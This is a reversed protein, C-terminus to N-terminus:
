PNKNCQSRRNTRHVTAKRMSAPQLQIMKVVRYMPYFNNFHIHDIRPENKTTIWDITRNQDALGLWIIYIVTNKSAISDNRSHPRFGPGPPLNKQVCCNVGPSFHLEVHFREESLINKTPDEYLMIVIQSMYNLESVISIYEMARRWQEDTMVDVLGGSRLVTLLSHIHSESTFYLRTRVHRGPSTVGHSYRPNLRNVSENGIEEINRQLDAKIKKLLPTCIGTGITLKEQTTIGYEQPIVIDALYKAYLYLEEAQEYQLTHQNHQLDYKICDSIFLNHIDNAITLRSSYLGYIDPIKSIDFKNKTSFFDKEIKGWRRAMLDWTEGHYLIADRTKLDDKKLGIITLLSKILEHVHTCCQFPNKVFLMAQNISISNASNIAMRDEDTFDRDAQM